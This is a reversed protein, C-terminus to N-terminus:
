RSINIHIRDVFSSSYTTPPAAARTKSYTSSSSGNEVVLIHRIMYLIEKNVERQPPRRM